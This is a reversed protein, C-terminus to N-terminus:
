NSKKGTKDTFANSYKDHWDKDDLTKPIDVTPKSQSPGAGALLLNKQLGLRQRAVSDAFMGYGMLEKVVAERAEGSLDGDKLEKITRLAAHNAQVSLANLQKELLDRLEDAPLMSLEQIEAFYERASDSPKKPLILTPKDSM